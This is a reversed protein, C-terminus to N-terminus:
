SQYEICIYIVSNINTDSEVTRDSEGNVPAHVTLTILGTYILTGLVGDAQVLLTCCAFKQTREM